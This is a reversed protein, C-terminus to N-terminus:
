PLIFRDPFVWKGAVNHRQVKKKMWTRVYVYNDASRFLAAQEPYVLMRAFFLTSSSYSRKRSRKYPSTTFRDGNCNRPSLISRSHSPAVMYRHLFLSCANRSHAGIMTSTVISGEQKRAVKIHILHSFRLTFIRRKRGAMGWCCRACTCRSFSSVQGV